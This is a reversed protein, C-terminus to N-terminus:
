GKKLSGNWEGDPAATNWRQPAQETPTDAKYSNKRNKWSEKDKMNKLVIGPVTQIARSFTNIHYFVNTNETLSNGNRLVGLSLGPGVPTWKNGLLSWGLDGNQGQEWLTHLSYINDGKGLPEPEMQASDM